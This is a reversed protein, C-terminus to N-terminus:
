SYIQILMLPPPAVISATYPLIKVDYELCPNRLCFTCMIPYRQAAFLYLHALLVLSNRKATLMNRACGKIKIKVRKLISTFIPFKSFDGEVIWNTFLFCSRKSLFLLINCQSSSWYCLYLNFVYSKMKIMRLNLWERRSKMLPRWVSWSFVFRVLIADLETPEKLNYRYFITFVSRVDDDNQLKM